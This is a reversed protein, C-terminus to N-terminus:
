IVTTLEAQLVRCLASAVKEIFYEAHGEVASLAYALTYRCHFREISSVIPGLQTDQISLHELESTSKYM